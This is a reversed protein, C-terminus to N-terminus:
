PSRTPSDGLKRAAGDIADLEPKGERILKLIEALRQREEDTKFEGLVKAQRTTPMASILDVTAQMENAKIM